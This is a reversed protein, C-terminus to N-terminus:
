LYTWRVMGEKIEITAPIPLPVILKGGGDLYNRFKMVFFDTFHWPLILFYDPNLEIAEKEPIIPIDTGVTKLGFKDPNVEAAYKILRYDLGFVQLLTNGKTSAGLVFVKKNHREVEDSIFGRVITEIARVRNAFEGFADTFSNLYERESEIRHLVDKSEERVGERGLYIRLSGGNVNNHQYDTIVLGHDKFLNWLYELSYYELHEFCINDFANIKLMSVLDTFQIVWIGDIDLIEKVEEIFSIPNELDYFMAISTVVKAKKVLPYVKSSFYDNIFVTANLRAENAINYAPDYGVFVLKKNNFLTFLTGDNCGIDVVVDGDRLTIAKEISEVIDKLSDVMSKNLSSKYWYQRYMLDLDISDGLQVLGCKICIMTILPVKDMTTSLFTSPYIEKLNLVEKLESNCIRCNM